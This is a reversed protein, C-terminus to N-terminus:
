SNQTTENEKAAESKRSLEELQKAISNIQDQINIASKKFNEDTYSKIEGFKDTAKIKLNAYKDKLTGLIENSNARLDDRLEQGSKDAALLGSLYGAAAGLILGLLFKTASSEQKIILKSENEKLM